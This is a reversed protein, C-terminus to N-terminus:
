SLCGLMYSLKCKRCCLHLPAKEVKSLGLIPPYRAVSPSRKHMKYALCNIESAAVLRSAALTVARFRGLTSSNQLMSQFFMTPPCYSNGSFTMGIYIFWNFNEFLCVCLLKSQEAVLFHQLTALIIRQKVKISNKASYTFHCMKNNNKKQLRFPLLCPPLLCFM